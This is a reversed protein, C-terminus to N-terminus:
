REPWEWRRPADDAPPSPPPPPPPPPSYSGSPPYPPSGGTWPGGGAWPGGAGYTGPGRRAADELKPRVSALYVIFSVLTIVGCCIIGVIPLAIWLGRNQGAMAFQWDPRRAADIIVFLAFGLGVLGSIGYVILEPAGVNVM